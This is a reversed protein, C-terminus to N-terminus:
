AEGGEAPPTTEAGPVAEGSRSLGHALLEGSADDRSVAISLTTDPVEVQRLHTGTIGGNEASDLLRRLTTYVRAIEDPELHAMATHFPDSFRVSGRRRAARSTAADQERRVLIQTREFVQILARDTQRLDRGELLSERLRAVADLRQKARKMPPLCLCALGFLFVGLAFFLQGAAPPLAAQGAKVLSYVEGYLALGGVISFLLGVPMLLKEAAGAVRRIWRQQYSIRATLASVHTSIGLRRETRAARWLKGAIGLNTVFLLIAAASSGLALFLVLHQREAYPSPLVLLWLTSFAFTCWVALNFFLFLRQQDPSLRERDLVALAQRYERPDLPITPASM